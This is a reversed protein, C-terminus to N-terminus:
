FFYLAALKAIRHDVRHRISSCCSHQGRDCSGFRSRALRGAAAFACSFALRCLAGRARGLALRDLASFGSGFSARCCLAPCAGLGSGLRRAPHATAGPWGCATSRADFGCSPSRAALEVRMVLSLIILDVCNANANEKAPLMPRAAKNLNGVPHERHAPLHWVRHRLACELGTDDVTHPLSDLIPTAGPMQGEDAVAQRAKAGQEEQYNM